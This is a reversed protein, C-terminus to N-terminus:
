RRMDAAPVSKRQGRSQPVEGPRGNDHIVVGVHASQAFRFEAGAAAATRQEVHRQRRPDAATNNRTFAHVAARIRVGSFDSM